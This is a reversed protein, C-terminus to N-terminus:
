VEQTLRQHLEERRRQVNGLETMLEHAYDPCCEQYDIIQRSLERLRKGARGYENWDRKRKWREIVKM